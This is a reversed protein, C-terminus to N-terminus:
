GRAKIADPGFKRLIDNADKEGLYDAVRVSRVTIEKPLRARLTDLLTIKGHECDGFVIVEKFKTLWEWTHSLWTFGTAGTPVSVANKIGAEAVSLSDIQGETIILRDFGECHNMGFLIPKTDKMFWEKCKDVGPRFDTKRYKVATLTGGEDYFPLVLVKRDETMTTIHYRRTIEESIGRSKLYEIAAARTQIDRQPLQKYIKPENYQLQYGFDRCLEVFHGRKACSARQCMFAGYNLNVSFTYQDGHAGGNCYPCKKFDLEDGRQRTEYNLSAAFSFVDSKNMEYSM